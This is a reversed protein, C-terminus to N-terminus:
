LIPTELHGFSRITRKYHLILKIPRFDLCLTSLTFNLFRTECFFNPSLNFFTRETGKLLREM